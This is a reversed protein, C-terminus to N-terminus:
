ARLTALATTWRALEDLLTVAAKDHADIATFAGSEKDIAQGVFPISIAESIPVMKLAAVTQKVMQAARLGASVGGYSVLAVAKYNWEVFLYDLANLLAPATSYNYEPTVFVFADLGAVRASWAKQHDSEYKRLRPHYREAFMPLNVDKLDVVDVDFHAHARAREIFWDAVPRGVRGERVSAVVVGLKPM